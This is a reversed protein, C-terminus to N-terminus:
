RFALGNPWPGVYELAFRIEELRQQWVLESRAPICRVNSIVPQLEILRGPEVLSGAVGSSRAPHPGLAGLHQGCRRELEDRMSPVSVYMILPQAGQPTMLGPYLATFELREQEGVAAEVEEAERSMRSLAIAAQSEQAAAEEAARRLAGSLEGRSYVPDWRGSTLATLSKALSLADDTPDILIVDIALSSERCRYAAEKARVPDSLGDTVLLIKTATPREQPDGAHEIAADLAAAIDTGNAAHLQALASEFPRRNGAVGQHILSAQRTFGFLAVLMEPNRDLEVLVNEKAADLKVESETWRVRPEGVAPTSSFPEGMSGSHDLLIIWM